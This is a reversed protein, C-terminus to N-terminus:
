TQWKTVEVKVLRQTGRGDVSGNVGFAKYSLGNFIIRDEANINVTGMFYFVGVLQVVQQNPLIRTKTQNQFRCRYVTGVAEQDRGFKNYGTKPYITAQQAMLNQLSM